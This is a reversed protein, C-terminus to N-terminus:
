FHVCLRRGPCSNSSTLHRHRRVQRTKVNDISDECFTVRVHLSKLWRLMRPINRNSVQYIKTISVIGLYIRRNGISYSPSVVRYTAFVTAEAEGVKPTIGINLVYTCYSAVTVKRKSNRKRRKKWFILGTLGMKHNPELSPLDAGGSSGTWRTGRRTLYPSDFNISILWTLVLPYKDLGMVRCAHTPIQM